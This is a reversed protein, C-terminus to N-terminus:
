LLPMRSRNDMRHRLSMFYAQLEDSKISGCGTACGGGSTGCSTCGGGDQKGCGPKGCGGHLNELGANKPPLAMNHLTIQLEYKKSLTSVLQREDCDGWRLHHLNALQGDLLIEVDLLAIPLNLEDLLRQGDEFLHHSRERQLAAWCDDDSTVRRLLQGVFSQSLLHAHRATAPCLVVGLELGQQSRVVVRDDRRCELREVPRFLGFDGLCGHSVLYEQEIM